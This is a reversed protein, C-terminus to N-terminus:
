LYEITRPWMSVVGEVWLKLDEQGFKGRYIQLAENTRVLAKYLAEHDAAAIKELTDYPTEVLLRAFKPGVWKLRGVDTLRTLDLIDTVTVEGEQALKDRDEPSLIRDYLQVTNKIGIKELKAVVEPKVGPFDALKIPKPLYSNVERRLLTLYDRPIETQAAFTQVASKNKLATQLQALNEIGYAKLVAFHADLDEQLSQQSPLLRTQKLYRQLKELPFEQLNPGYGPAQM